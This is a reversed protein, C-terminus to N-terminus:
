RWVVPPEGKRILEIAEPGNYDEDLLSVTLKGSDEFDLVIKNNTEIVSVLKKGELALVSGGDYQYRNYINLIMSDAFILQFYDQIVEVKKIILGVLIQLVGM